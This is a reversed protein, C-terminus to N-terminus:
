QRPSSDTGPLSKAAQELTVSRPYRNVAQSDNRVIGASRNAPHEAAVVKMCHKEPQSARPAIGAPNNSSQVCTSTNWLTKISQTARFLM